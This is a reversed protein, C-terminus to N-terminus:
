CNTFIQYFIMKQALISISMYSIDFTGFELLNQASKIKPGIWALCTSTNFLFLKLCWFRSRSIQFISYALNWYIKLMKLKLVLQHHHHHHLITKTTYKQLRVELQSWQCFDEGDRIESMGRAPNSGACFRLEPKTLHLQATTLVVVGRRWLKPKVPPLYKIFIMKSMLISIPM